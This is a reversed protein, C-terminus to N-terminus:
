PLGPASKRPSRPRRLGSRPGRAPALSPKTKDRNDRLTKTMPQPAARLSAGLWDLYPKSGAVIPLAIFEPVEYSHLRSIEKQLDRLLRGETKILLLFESSAEISGKWWYTSQVPAELLNVCAALRAGVVASAIRQAEEQSGCTVLVLRKDKATKRGM